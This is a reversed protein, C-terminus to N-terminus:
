KDYKEKLAEIILLNMSKMTEAAKIKIKQHLKESIFVKIVKDKKM